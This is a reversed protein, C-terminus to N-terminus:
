SSCEQTPGRTRAEVVLAALVDDAVVAAEDVVVVSSFVVLLAALPYHPHATVPRQDPM